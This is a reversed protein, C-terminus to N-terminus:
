LGVAAGGRDGTRIRIAEAVPTVILPAERSAEAAMAKTIAALALEQREESVVVELRLMTRFVGHMSGRYVHRGRGDGAEVRVDAVTLGSLGVDQLAESVRDLLFRDLTVEIKVM